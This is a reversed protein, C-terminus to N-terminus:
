PYQPYLAYRLAYAYGGSQKEVDMAVSGISGSFQLRDIALVGGSFSASMLGSLRVGGAAYAVAADAVYLGQGTSVGLTGSLAVVGGLTGALPM